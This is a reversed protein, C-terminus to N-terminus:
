KVDKAPRLGRGDVSTHLRYRLVSDLDCNEKINTGDIKALKDIRTKEAKVEDLELIAQVIKDESNNIRELRKSKMSLIKSAFPALGLGGDHMPAHIFGLPTDDPLRSGHM